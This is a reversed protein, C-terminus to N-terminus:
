PGPGGSGKRKKGGPHVALGVKSTGGPKGSGLFIVPFFNPSGGSFPGQGAKFGLSAKGWGFGMGFSMGVWKITMRIACLQYTKDPRINIGM